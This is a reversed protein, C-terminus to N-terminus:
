KSWLIKTAVKVRNWGPPCIIEVIHQHGWWTKFAVPAGTQRDIISYVVAGYFLLNFIHNTSHNRPFNKRNFLLKELIVIVHM